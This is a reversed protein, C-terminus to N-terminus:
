YHERSCQGVVNSESLVKREVFLWTERQKDQGEM